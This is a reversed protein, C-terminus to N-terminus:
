SFNRPNMIKRIKMYANKANGFDRDEPDNSNKPSDGDEFFQNKKWIKQDLELLFLRQDLNQYM